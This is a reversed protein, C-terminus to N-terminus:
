AFLLVALGGLLIVTVGGGGIRKPSGSHQSAWAATAEARSSSLAVSMLGVQSSDPPGATPLPTAGAALVTVTGGQPLDLPTYSSDALGRIPDISSGPSFPPTTAITANFLFPPLAYTPLPLLINPLNIRIEPTSALFTSTKSLSEVTTTTHLPFLGVKPTSPSNYSAVGLYFVSYLSRLFTSGLTWSLGDGTPPQAVPWALCEKRNTSVRGILYDSPQLVYARGSPVPSHLPSPLFSACFPSDADAPKAVHPVLSRSPPLALFPHKGLALPCQRGRIAPCLGSDM